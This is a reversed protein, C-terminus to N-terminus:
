LKTFRMAPGIQKEGSMPLAFYIGSGLDPVIFAGTGAILAETRGSLDIIRVNDTREPGSLNLLNVVPDPFLQWSLVDTPTTIGTPSSNIGWLEVMYSNGHDDENRFGVKTYGTGANPPSYFYYYFYQTYGAPIMILATDDTTQYCVDLCLSSSWGTPLQVNLKVVRVFVDSASTNTLECEATLTTADVGLITDNSILQMTFQGDFSGECTAPNGLLSDIDCIINEPFKDYWDHHAFIVGNTDILYANNPQPGYYNWWENCPGDIFIPADIQMDDVIELVIDKREGYTIPQRFLIGANINQAGTNVVGFYPSIDQDPHAELTYIIVTTLDQGYTAFVNNISPVKNRFVPCTYSASIM